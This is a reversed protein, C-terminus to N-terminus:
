NPDLEDDSDSDSDVECVKTNDKAMLCM